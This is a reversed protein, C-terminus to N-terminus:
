NGAKIYADSSVSRARRLAAQAAPKSYPGLVVALLGNRLGAINNTNVIRANIGKNRALQLRKNAKEKQSFPFSGLVVFWSGKEVAPTKTATPSKTPTITKKTTPKVSATPKVTPKKSEQKNKKPTKSKGEQGIMDTDNSNTKNAQVINKGVNNSGSNMFWIFLGTGGILVLLALLGVSLYAFIPSVGQKIIQPQINETSNLVNKVVTKKNWKNLKM